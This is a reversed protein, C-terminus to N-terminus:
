QRPHQSFSQNRPSYPLALSLVQVEPGSIVFWGVWRKLKSIIFTILHPDL